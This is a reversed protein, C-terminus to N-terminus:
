EDHIWKWWGYSLTVLLVEVALMLTSLMVVCIVWPVIPAAQEVPISLFLILIDCVYLFAFLCSLYVRKM